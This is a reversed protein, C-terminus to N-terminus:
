CNKTMDAIKAAHRKVDAMLGKDRKIDDARALTRLADEVEYRRMDSLVGLPKQAKPVRVVSNSKAPGGARRVANANKM